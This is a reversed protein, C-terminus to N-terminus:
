RIACVLFLLQQSPRFDDYLLGKSGDTARGYYISGVCALDSCSVLSMSPLMCVQAVLVTVLFTTMAIRQDPSPGGDAKPILLFVAIGVFTIIDMPFMVKWLWYSSNRSFTIRLSIQTGDVAFMCRFFHSYEVKSRDLQGPQTKEGESDDTALRHFRRGFVM